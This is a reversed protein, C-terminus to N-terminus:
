KLIIVIVLGFVQAETKIESSLMKQQTSSGTETDKARISTGSLVWEWLLKNYKDLYLWGTTTTDSFQGLLLWSLFFLSQVSFKSLKLVFVVHLKTSYEM